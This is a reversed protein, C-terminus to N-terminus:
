FHASKRPKNLSLIIVSDKLISYDALKRGNELIKGNYTLYQDAISIHEHLMIIYKLLDVSYLLNVDLSIRENFLNKVFVEMLGETFQLHFTSQHRGFVFRMPHFIPMYALDGKLYVRWKGDAAEAHVLMDDLTTTAVTHMKAPIRTRDHQHSLCRLSVAIRAIPHLLAFTLLTTASTICVSEENEPTPSSNISQLTWDSPNRLSVSQKTREFFKEAEPSIDSIMKELFLAKAASVSLGTDPCEIWGRRTDGQLEFPIMSSSHPIFVIDVIWQRNHRQKWLSISYINSNGDCDNGKQDQCQRGGPFSKKDRVLWLCKQAQRWAPPFVVDYCSELINLITNLTCGPWAAPTYRLLQTLTLM